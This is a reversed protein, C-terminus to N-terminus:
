PSSFRILNTTEPSISVTVSDGDGIEVEHPANDVYVMGPGRIISVTSFFNLEPYLGHPIDTASNNFALGVGHSFDKKTISKFYGTAGLATAFVVGDGRVHDYHGGPVVVSFRLAHRPNRNRVVVENVALFREHHVRVELKKFPTVLFSGQALRLFVERPPFVTCFSCHESKRISIKPVGPYAAESRLFTGDGGYSVVADPNDHVVTLGSAEADKELEQTSDGFLVVRM